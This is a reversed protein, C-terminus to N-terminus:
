TVKEVLCSPCSDYYTHLHYRQEIICIVEAGTFSIPSYRNMFPSLPHLCHESLPAKFLIMAGMVKLLISDCNFTQTDMGKALCPLKREMHAHM